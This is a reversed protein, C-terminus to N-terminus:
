HLTIAVERGRRERRVLGAAVAESVRKSAESKSIALEDAIEQNGMARRKGLLLKRLEELEAPPPLAPEETIAQVPAIVEVRQRSHGFTLMVFGLLNLAVSGALTPIIEVIEPTWGLLAAIPNQPVPVQTGALIARKEDVKAEAAACRPGRVKCETKAADVAYELAANRQVWAQNETATLSQRANRESTQVFGFLEGSFVGRLALAALLRRGGHWMPSLVWAALATGAALAGVVIQMDYGLTHLINVYGAVGILGLGGITSLVRVFPTIQM